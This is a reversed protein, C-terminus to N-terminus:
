VLVLRSVPLVEVIQRPHSFPLDRITRGPVPEFTNFTYTHIRKMPKGHADFTSLKRTHLIQKGEFEASDFGDGQSPVILSDYTVPRFDQMFNVGLVRYIESVAYIPLDVPPELRAVFRMNPTTSSLITPELAVSEPNNSLPSVLTPPPETWNIIHVESSDDTADSITTLTDHAVWEKSVRLPPYGLECEISAGWIKTNSLFENNESKTPQDFDMADESLTQKADLAYRQETWYELVLGFNKGRHMSPRGVWGKCMHNWYGKQLNRKNEKEWIRNLCEYIGEVAEFCNIERSLQDLRALRRLNEHFDAMSKWCGQQQKGPSQELNRKLVDSAETRGEGEPADPTAYRLTVDRVVEQGPEFEIELDVSNGAISLNNDQWMCELGELRGLREIGERCVGRGAVRTRLLQVVEDIKKRREEELDKPGTMNLQPMGMPHMEAENMGQGGLGENAAPSPTIGGLGLALLAASPSSFMAADDMSATTAPLPTPYQYSSVSPHNPHGPGSASPTKMSPSKHSLPRGMPVASPHPSSTFQTPTAGLNSKSFPTAM